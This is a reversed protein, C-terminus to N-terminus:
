VGIVCDGQGGLRKLRIGRGLSVLACCLVAWLFAPSGLRLTKNWANEKWKHPHTKLKMVLIAAGKRMVNSKIHQTHTSATHIFPDDRDPRQTFQTYMHAHARLHVASSKIPNTLSLSLCGGERGRGRRWQYRGANDIRFLEMEERHGCKNSPRSECLWVPDWRRWRKRLFGWKKGGGWKDKEKNMKWWSRVRDRDNHQKEDRQTNEM